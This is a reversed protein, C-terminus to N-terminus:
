ITSITRATHLLSKWLATQTATRSYFLCEMCCDGPLGAKDPLPHLHAPCQQFEDMSGTLSAVLHGSFGVEETRWALSLLRPSLPSTLPVALLHLPPPLLPHYFIQFCLLAVSWTLGNVERLARSMGPAGSLCPCLPLVDRLICCRSQGRWCGGM